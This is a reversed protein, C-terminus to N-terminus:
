SLNPNASNHSYDLSPSSEFIKLIVPTLFELVTDKSTLPDFGSTKSSAYLDNCSAKHTM